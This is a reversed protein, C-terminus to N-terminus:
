FDSTPLLVPLLCCGGCHDQIEDIIKSKDMETRRGGGGGKEKYLRVHGSVRVVFPLSNKHDGQKVKRLRTHGPGTWGAPFGLTERVGQGGGGM